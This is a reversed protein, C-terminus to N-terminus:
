EDGAQVQFCVLDKDRWMQVVRPRDELIFLVDFYPAIYRDYIKSKVETDPSQDQVQRMFLAFYDTFGHRRLWTESPIRYTEPRGSVLLITYNAALAMKYAAEVARNVEDEEIGAFFAHWNPKNGRLHHIRHSTDSLTGDLDIIIAERNISPDLKFLKADMAMRIIVSRETAREGREAREADRRVCEQWPVSRFDKVEFDVDMERAIRRLDSVGHLNTNDVIVSKGAQLARVIGQDRLQRIRAEHARPNQERLEDSNVREYNGTGLMEKAWTTKGSGPLGVTAILSQTKPEQNDAAMFPVELKPM